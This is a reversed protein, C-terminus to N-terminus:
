VREEPDSSGAFFAFFPLESLIRASARLHVHLQVQRNMKQAEGEAGM